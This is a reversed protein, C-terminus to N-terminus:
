VINETDTGRRSKKLEKIRNEHEKNCKRLNVVEHKLDFNEAELEM